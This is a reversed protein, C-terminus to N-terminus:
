SVDNMQQIKHYENKLENENNVPIKNQQRLNILYDLDEKYKIRQLKRLKEEDDFGIGGESQINEILHTEKPIQFNVNQQINLNNQSPQQM